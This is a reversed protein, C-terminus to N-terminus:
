GVMGFKEEQVRFDRLRLGVIWLSTLYLSVATGVWLTLNLFRQAYGMSMWQSLKPVGVLIFIILAGNAFSLRALYKKWGAMPIYVGRKVLLYFLMGANFSSSLATALALGSHHLPIIFLCNLIVNSM